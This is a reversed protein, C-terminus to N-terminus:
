TVTPRDWGVVETPSPHLGPSYDPIPILKIICNTTVPSLSTAVGGGGTLIANPDPDPDLSPRTRVVAEEPEQHLAQATM